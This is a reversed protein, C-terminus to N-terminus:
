FMEDKFASEVPEGTEDLANSRLLPQRINASDVEIAFQHATLGKLFSIANDYADAWPNTDDDYSRRQYLFYIALDSALKEIFDPVEVLPVTAFRRLYGNILSTADEIAQNLRAVVNADSIDKSGGLEPDYALNILSKESLRKKLGDISTYYAM